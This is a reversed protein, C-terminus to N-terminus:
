HPARLALLKRAAEPAPRLDRVMSAVLACTLLICDRYLMNGSDQSFSWIGARHGFGNWRPMEIKRQRNIKL